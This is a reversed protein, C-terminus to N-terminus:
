FLKDPDDITLQVTEGVKATSIYLTKNIPRNGEYTHLTAPVREHTQGTKLTDTITNRITCDRCCASNGCGAPLRANSCEMFEGGLLGKPREGGGLFTKSYTQNYAIVRVGNSIVLMPTQFSDLFEALKLGSWQRDFYEGCEPCIGHTLAPNDLPPKEGMVKRCYSCIIKM